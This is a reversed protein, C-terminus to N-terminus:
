LTPLVAFRGWGGSAALATDAAEYLRLADVRAGAPGSGCAQVMEDVAADDAGALVAEVSGNARNRVWGSLGRAEAGHACWARYGVGQVRGEIILHVVKM